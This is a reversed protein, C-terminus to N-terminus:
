TCNYNSCPQICSVEFRKRTETEKVIAIKYDNRYVGADMDLFRLMLFLGELLANTQSKTKPMDKDGEPDNMEGM